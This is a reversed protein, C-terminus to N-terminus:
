YLLYHRIAYACGDHDCDALVGDAAAKAHENANGMALGLGAAQLLPVDNDADGVGITQEIPIGLKHALDKLGTGKSCGSPSIELTSIESDLCDVPLHMAKIRARTRARGEVSAHYLNIKEIGEPHQRIMEAVNEKRTAVEAYLSAYVAMNFHPMRVVDKANVYSEGMIMAQPMIDELPIIRLIDPIVEPSLTHRLLIKRDIRDYILTGCECIEYRVDQLIQDYPRLEAVPRGTCIAVDKGAAVADAIAERCAETVRKDSTLLTGDMDFAILQYGM